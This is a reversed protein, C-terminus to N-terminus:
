KFFNRVHFHLKQSMGKLPPSLNFSNNEGYAEESKYCCCDDEAFLRKDEDMKIFSISSHQFHTLNFKFHRALCKAEENNPSKLFILNQFYSFIYEHEYPIYCNKRLSYESAFSFQLCFILVSFFNTYSLIESGFINEFCFFPVNKHGHTFLSLQSGSWHDILEFVFYNKFIIMKSGAYM